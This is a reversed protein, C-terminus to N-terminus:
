CPDESCPDSMSGSIIKNRCVYKEENSAISREHDCMTTKENGLTLFSYAHHRPCRCEIRTVTNNQDQFQMSARTMAIPRESYSPSQLIYSCWPFVCVPECLVM